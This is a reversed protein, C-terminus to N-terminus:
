YSRRNTGTGTRVDYLYESRYPQSPQSLAPPTVPLAPQNPAPPPPQPVAPAPAPAPRQMRRIGAPMMARRRNVYQSRGWEPNGAQNVVNPLQVTGTVPDRTSGYKAMIEQANMGAIDSGNIPQMPSPQVTPRVGYFAGSDGSVFQGIGRTRRAM